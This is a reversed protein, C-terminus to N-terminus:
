LKINLAKELDVTGVVELHGGSPRIKTVTFPLDDRIIFVPNASMIQRVAEVAQGTSRIGAISISDPKFYVVKGGNRAELAGTATVQATAYGLDIAGSIQLKDSTLSLTPSIVYSHTSSFFRVIEQPAVLAKFTGVPWKRSKLEITSFNIDELTIGSVKVELSSYDKFALRIAPFAKISVSVDRAQPYRKTIENKVYNSAIKPIAIEGAIWLLLLVAVV